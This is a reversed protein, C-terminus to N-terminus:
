KANEDQTFHKTIADKLWARHADDGHAIADYLTEIRCQAMVLKIDLREVEDCAVLLEACTECMDDPDCCMALRAREVDFDTM